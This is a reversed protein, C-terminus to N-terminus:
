FLFSVDGRLGITMPLHGISGAKCLANTSATWDTAVGVQASMAVARMAKRARMPVMTMANRCFRMALCCVMMAALCSTGKVEIKSTSM